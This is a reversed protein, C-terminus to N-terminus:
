KRTYVKDKCKITVRTWSDPLVSKVQKIGKGTIDVGGFGFIVSQLMAGAGTMFYPNDSTPTEAFVGFPARLNPKYAREFMATAEKGMGLRSYQVAFVSYSMAPGNKPDIKHEYYKLDQLM